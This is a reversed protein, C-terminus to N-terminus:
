DVINTRVDFDTGYLTTHWGIQAHTACVMALRHSWYGYIDVGVDVLEKTRLDELDAGSGDYTGDCPACYTDIYITM